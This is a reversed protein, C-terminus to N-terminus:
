NLMSENNDGERKVVLMRKTKTAINIKLGVLSSAAARMAVECVSYQERGNASPAAKPGGV